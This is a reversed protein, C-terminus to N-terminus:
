RRPVWAEDFRVGLVLKVVDAYSAAGREVRNAKLYQDYVRWGVTAVRPNVHQEIRRAIARLDDRPGAALGAVVVIRDGGRMARSLEGFLFLWGSYRHAPAGRVCTLWGAFNADGEDTVGALHSWEHAVVFPREVPLLDDAILTELFFPDTMGAVGAREFYLDLITSKPRAPTALRAAGLDRQARAFAAALTADVQSPSSDPLAAHAPAYLSNIEGVAILALDRAAEPTVRAADFPLKQVLPIRRYNLGWVCAFVLYLAAAWLATRMGIDGLAQLWSTRRAVTQLTLGIWGGVVALILLDFLPIPVLNSVRTIWPQAALYIATSYYEEVLSPPVPLVATGVAAVLLAIRWKV